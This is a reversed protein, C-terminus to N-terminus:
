PLREPTATPSTPVWGKEMMKQRDDYRSHHRGLLELGRHDENMGRTRGLCKEQFQEQINFWDQYQSPPNMLSVLLATKPM